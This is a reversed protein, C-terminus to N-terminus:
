FSQVNWGSPIASSGRATDSGNYYFTGSSSVSSVWSGFYSNSFTGTYGIKIESLAYDVNFMYRYCNSAM